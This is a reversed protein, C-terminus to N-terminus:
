TGKVYEDISDNQNESNTVLSFNNTYKSIKSEKITKKNNNFNSNHIFDYNKNPSFIRKKIFNHSSDKSNNNITMRMPSTFRSNNNRIKIPSNFFSEYNFYLEPKKLDVIPKNRYERLPSLEINLYEELNNLNRQFKNRYCKEIKDEDNTKNNYDNIKKFLNLNANHNNSLSKLFIRNSNRNRLSSYRNIDIDPSIKLFTKDTEQKILSIKSNISTNSNINRNSNKNLM